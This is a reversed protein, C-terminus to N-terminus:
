KSVPVVGTIDDEKPVIGNVFEAAADADTALLMFLDSYAQTSKFENTLEESKYFHKGDLSREGYSMLLIKKFLEKIEKGNQASVIKQVYQEFGNNDLEMEMLEAQSLNFMFKETRKNGNYDRYTMEKIYM